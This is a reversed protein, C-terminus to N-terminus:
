YWRGDPFGASAPTCNAVPNALRTSNEPFGAVVALGSGDDNMTYLEYDYRDTTTPGRFYIVGGGNQGAGGGVEEGEGAAAEM